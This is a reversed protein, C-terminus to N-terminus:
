RRRGPFRDVCRQPRSRGSFKSTGNKNRIFTGEWRWIGGDHKCGRDFERCLHDSLDTAFWPSGPLEEGATTKFAWDIPLIDGHITHTWLIFGTYPERVKPALHGWTDQYVAEVNEIFPTGLEAARLAGAKTVNM